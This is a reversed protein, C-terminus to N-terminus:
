QDGRNADISANAAIKTGDIAVAGFQALGARGAIMLGRAKVRSSFQTNRLSHFTSRGAIIITELTLM